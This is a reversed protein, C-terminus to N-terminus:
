DKVTQVFCKIEPIHENQTCFNFVQCPLEEQLPEFEPDPNIACIKFGCHAYLAIVCKLATSVTMVQRNSLNKATGFHLGRSITLLFPIKNVFMIDMALILFRYKERDMQGVVQV